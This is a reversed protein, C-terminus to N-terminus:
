VYQELLEIMKEASQRHTYHQAIYEQGARAKECAEGEHEDLWALRTTLDNLDPDAWLADTANVTDESFHATIMRRIAVPYAWEEADWMGLWPTAVTPLGAYYVAERPPMGFGEGRSPFIFMDAMSLLRQWATESWTGNLVQIQDDQCGDLFSKPGMDYSRAKIWLQASPCKGFVQKFALITADAGKRADGLSYGLVLRGKRQWSVSEGLPPLFDIGIPIVHVPKRVGSEELVQVLPPAPVIVREFRANIEAVWKPNMRDTETMTYLWARTTRVLWPDVNFPNGIVLTVPGSRRPQSLTDRVADPLDHAFDATWKGSPTVIVGLGVLERWLGIEFKGYGTRVNAYALHLNLPQM